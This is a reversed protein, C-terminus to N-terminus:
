IPGTAAYAALLSVSPATPEHVHLVDFSEGDIGARLWRRARAFSVPGFLLRAVSGNYPVPLPRGADTLNDPLPGSSDMVPALVAVDHGLATLTEALDRVHAMVGGPVDWPYPCVLGVRM